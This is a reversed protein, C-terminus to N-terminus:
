IGDEKTEEVKKIKKPKPKKPKPPKLELAVKNSFGDTDLKALKGSHKAVASLVKDLWEKDDEQFNGLVHGTVREKDGPHGIGLRVRWYKSGLHQDISRLGNHGGAGGSFKVKLKGAKLDLEDHLVIVHDMPIKYFAVAAQVAEGSLNMFTDPKMIMVKKGSIEGMTILSKFKKKFNVLNHRHVIEDVAMFGINHRNNKYQTGPNGLGVILLM